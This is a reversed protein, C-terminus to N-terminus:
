FSNIQQFAMVHYCKENSLWYFHSLVLKIMVMINPAEFKLNLSYPPWNSKSGFYLSKKQM